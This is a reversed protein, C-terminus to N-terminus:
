IMPLTNPFAKIIISRKRQGDILGSGGAGGHQFETEPIQCAAATLLLSGSVDGYHLLFKGAPKDNTGLRFKSYPM